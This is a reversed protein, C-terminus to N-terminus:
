LGRGPLPRDQRIERQWASPDPVGPVGGRAAIEALAAAMDRGRSGNSSGVVTVEVTLPSSQDPAESSWKLRDGSLIARYSRSM